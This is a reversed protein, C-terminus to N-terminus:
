MAPIMGPIVGKNSGIFNNSNDAEGPRLTVSIVNDVM